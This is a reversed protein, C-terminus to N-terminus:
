ICDTRNEFVDENKCFWVDIEKIIFICYRCRVYRHHSVISSCGDKIRCFMQKKYSNIGTYLHPNLM